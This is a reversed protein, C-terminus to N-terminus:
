WFPLCHPLAADLGWVLCAADVHLFLSPCPGPRPHPVPILPCGCCGQWSAQAGTRRGGSSHPSLLSPQKGMAPIRDSQGPLFIACSIHLKALRYCHIRYPTPVAWGFVWSLAARAPLPDVSKRTGLLGLGQDWFPKASNPSLRVGGLLPM